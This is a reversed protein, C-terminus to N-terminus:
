MALAHLNRADPINPIPMLTPTPSNRAPIMVITSKENPTIPEEFELGDTGGVAIGVAIGFVIGDSDMDFVFWVVIGVAFALSASFYSSYLGVFSVFFHM